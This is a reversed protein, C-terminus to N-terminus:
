KENRGSSKGKLKESIALESKGEVQRGAEMYARALQYHADADEPRLKVAIELNQIAGSFDRQSLLIEGLAYRAAYYNAYTNIIERLLQVGRQSSKGNLLIRALQYKSGIDNPTLKLEQEFQQAAEARRDFRLYIMGAYYHIVKVDRPLNTETLESLGKNTEGRSLYLEGLLLHLHPTAQANTKLKEIIPEADTLKGQRIL